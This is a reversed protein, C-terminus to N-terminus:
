SNKHTPSKHLYCFITKKDLTTDRMCKEGGCIRLDCWDPTVAQHLLEQTELAQMLPLPCQVSRYSSKNKPPTERDGEAIKQAISRRVHLVDSDLDSWKLANIEGKWMDTYYAIM